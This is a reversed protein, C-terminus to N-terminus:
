YFNKYHRIKCTQTAPDLDMALLDIRYNDHNINRKSLYDLITLNFRQYKQNGFEEEPMGYDHSFKSKVECFILQGNDEFIVDIEGYRSRYNREIVVFGKGHLFRCALEESFKGKSVNTTMGM